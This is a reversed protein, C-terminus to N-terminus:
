VFVIWVKISRILSINNSEYHHSQFKSLNLKLTKLSKKIQKEVDELYQM